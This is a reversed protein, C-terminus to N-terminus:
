KCGRNYEMSYKIVTEGGWRVVKEKNKKFGISKYFELNEDSNTNLSIVDSGRKEAMPIIGDLIIKKGIGKRQYKKKIAIISIHCENKEIGGDSMNLIYRCTEFLNNLPLYAFLQYGKIEIFDKLKPNNSEPFMIFVTGVIEKEYELVYVLHYKVFLWTYVRWYTYLFDKYYKRKRMKSKFIEFLPYNYFANVCIKVIEEVNNLNAMKFDKM